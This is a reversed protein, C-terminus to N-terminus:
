FLFVETPDDPGLQLLRLPGGDGVYPLVAWDGASM